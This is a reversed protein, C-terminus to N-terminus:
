RLVQHTAEELAKKPDDAVAVYALGAITFDEKGQAKAGGPLGPTSQAMM